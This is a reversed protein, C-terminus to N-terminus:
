HLKSEWNFKPQPDPILLCVKYNTNAMLVLCLDGTINTFDCSFFDLFHKPLISSTGSFHWSQASQYQAKLSFFSPNQNNHPINLSYILCIKNHCHESFCIRMWNVNISHYFILLTFYFWPSFNVWVLAKELLKNHRIIAFLWRGKKWFIKLNQVNKGLNEFIKVKKTRKKVNKSKKRFFQM